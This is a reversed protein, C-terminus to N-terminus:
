AIGTFCPKHVNMHLKAISEASGLASVATVPARLLAKRPVRAVHQLLPHVALRELLLVVDHALALQRRLVGSAGCARM